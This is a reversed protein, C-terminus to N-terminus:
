SRVNVQENLKEDLRAEMKLSARRLSFNRVCFVREGKKKRKVLLVNCAIESGVGPEANM